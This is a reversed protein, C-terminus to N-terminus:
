FRCALQIYFSAGFSAALKSVQSGIVVAAVEYWPAGTPNYYFDATPVAM